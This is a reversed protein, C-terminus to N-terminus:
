INGHFQIKSLNGGEDIIVMLVSGPFHAGATEISVVNALLKVLHRVM